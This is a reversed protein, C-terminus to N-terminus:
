EECKQCRTGCSQCTAGQTLPKEICKPCVTHAVVFNPRHEAKGCWSKFCNVCKMCTKCLEDKTCLPCDPKKLPLYGEECESMQSQSCEFDYFIFKPLDMGKVPTSRIYCLHGEEVYNQCSKCFYEGCQHEETKRIERNLVKYCSTCKFWKQCPSLGRPKGTDKGQQYLPIVLHRVFCEDSRCTMHCESCSQTNNTVSCNDSKCVICSVECSHEEKRHYHKLCRVCFYKASFFGTVSTVAHFHSSDVHYLYICPYDSRDTEACTIFKNGLKASIVLIRVNLVEQFAKLDGLGAQREMSVNARRCLEKAMEGQELRKRNMLNKYYSPSFKHYLLSLELNKIGPHKERLTSWEKKDCKHLKAFAVAIARAMCLYDSNDIVVVSNKLSLSNKGENLNTLYRRKGGKPLEIVGVNIVLSENVSLSDNSNLVKEIAEMIIDANLEDLPQLPIIIPNNLSEHFIVVRGSNNGALSQRAATLVDEFMRHLDIRIDHLSRGQQNDNIKVQYTTERAKNKSFTREGKKRMIYFPRGQDSSTDNDFEDDFQSSTGPQQGGNVGKGRQM